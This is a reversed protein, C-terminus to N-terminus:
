LIDLGFDRIVLGTGRGQCRVASTGVNFLDALEVQSRKRTIWLVFLKLDRLCVNLLAAGPAAIFLAVLDIAPPLGVLVNDPGHEVRFFEQKIV